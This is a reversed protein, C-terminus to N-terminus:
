VGGSETASSLSKRSLFGVAVLLAMVWGLLPLLSYFGPLHLFMGLNRAVNGARWNPWAYEVLPNRLADSPFSQGALTLGWTAVLSWAALVLTLAWAWPRNGWRRFVFAIPLAMFPLMPLLYRPGVAFGGWWMISSANFLFVLLVSSFAVWLGPRQEGSRYWLVFGPVALL